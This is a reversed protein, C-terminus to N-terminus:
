KEKKIMLDLKKLNSEQLADVVESKTTGDMTTVVRQNLYEPFDTKSYTEGNLVRNGSSIELMAQDNEKRIGAVKPSDVVKKMKDIQEKLDKMNKNSLKNIPKSKVQVLIAKRITRQSDSVTATIVFDAGYRHEASNPGRDAIDTAQVSAYEGSDSRVEIGHLRSLIASTYQPEQRFRAPDVGVIAQRIESKFREQFEPSFKFTHRPM